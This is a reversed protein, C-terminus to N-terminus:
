HVLRRLTWFGLPRFSSFSVALLGSQCSVDILDFEIQVVKDPSTVVYLGCTEVNDGGNSRFVYHGADYVPQVCEPRTSVFRPAM